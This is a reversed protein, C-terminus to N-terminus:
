SKPPAFDFPLEAASRVSEGKEVRPVFWWESMVALAAEAFAPHTASKVKIATPKGDTDIVCSVIARGTPKSKALQEPYRPMPGALPKAPADGIKAIRTAAMKALAAEVFSRSMGSHFVESGQSFVHLEYREPAESPVSAEVIIPRGKALEEPRVEQVYLRRDADTTEFALAFFVDPLPRESRFTASFQFKKDTRKVSDLNSSFNNKVVNVTVFTPLFDDTPKIQYHYFAADPGSGLPIPRAYKEGNLFYPTRYDLKRVLRLSQAGDSVYLATQAFLPCPLALAALALLFFPRRVVIM